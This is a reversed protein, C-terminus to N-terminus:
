RPARARIVGALRNVQDGAVGSAITFVKYPLPTLGAFFVILVLATRNELLSDRSQRRLLWLAGVFVVLAAVWFMVQREFAMAVIRM